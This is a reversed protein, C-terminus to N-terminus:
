HGSSSDYVNLVVWEDGEEVFVVCLYTQWYVMESFRVQISVHLQEDDYYAYSLYISNIGKLEHEGNFMREVYDRGSKPHERSEFKIQSITNEYDNDLGVILKIAKEFLIYETNNAFCKNKESYNSLWINHGYFNKYVNGREDIYVSKCIECTCSPPLTETSQPEKTATPVPTPTPTPTNIKVTPEPEVVNNPPPKACATFVIAFVCLLCVFKM